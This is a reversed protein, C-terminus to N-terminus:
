GPEPLEALQFWFQELTRVAEVLGNFDAPKAVYANAGLRYADLVDGSERSNSMVIVPLHRLDPNARLARLAARGDRRVMRLDMLILHPRPSHAPDEWPARRELYDLLEQGDRLTTIQAEVRGKSLAIESLVQDQHEDDVVLVRPRRVPM